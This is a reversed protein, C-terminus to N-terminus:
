ADREYKLGLDLAAAQTRNRVALKRLVKQVHNKVTLPSINLAAGIEANSRGQRLLRLVEGERGTLTRRRANVGSVRKRPRIRILAARLHPIILEILEGLRTDFARGVSVFGFFTDVGGMASCAGHGALTDYQLASLHERLTSPLAADKGRADLMIPSRGLREWHALACTLLSGNAAVIRGRVDDALPMPCLVEAALPQGQGDFTACFMIEHPILTQLVGQTWSYFQAADHVRLAHEISLLLCDRDAVDWRDHDITSIM